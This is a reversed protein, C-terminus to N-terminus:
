IKDTAEVWMWSELKEYSRPWYKVEVEQGDRRVTFQMMNDLSQSATFLSFFRVVEDGNRNGAQEARSGVTVGTIRGRPYLSTEDFGLELKEADRRVMKLGFKAFGDAPPIIFTGNLMQLYSTEASDRGILDSLLELFEESQVKEGAAYKKYLALVLDDLGKEGDTAQTILGQVQALYIFGRIYPTLVVQTNLFPNDAIFQWQM